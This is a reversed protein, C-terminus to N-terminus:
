IVVHLPLSSPISYENKLKERLIGKFFIKQGPRYVPRDTYLYLKSEREELRWYSFYGKSVAYDYESRAIVIGNSGDGKFLERYFMGSDNTNGDIIKNYYSKRIGTNETPPETKYELGTVLPVSKLPIGTSGDVVCVLLDQSSWKSIMALRSIIILTRYAQGNGVAEIIYAGSDSLPIKVKFDM